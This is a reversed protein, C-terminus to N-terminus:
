VLSMSDSRSFESSEIILLLFTVEFTNDLVDDVIGSSTCRKGLDSESIGVLELLSDLVEDSNFSHESTLKDISPLLSGEGNSINKGDLEHRFTGDNGVALSLESVSSREGSGGSSRGSDNTV